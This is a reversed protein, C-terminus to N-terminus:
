PFINHSNPKTMSYRKEEDTTISFKTPYLLRLQCKNDRLTQIDDEWPRRAKM